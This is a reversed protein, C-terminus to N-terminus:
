YTGWVAINNLISIVYNTNAEAELPNDNFWTIGTISITITSDSTFYIVIEQNSATGVSASLSSITGLKYVTNPVLTSDIVSKETIVPYNAQLQGSPNTTITNNDTKVSVTDNNLSIATGASYSKNTTKTFGYVTITDTSVLATTFYITDNQIYYDYTDDSDPRLLVGNKYIIVTDRSSIGESYLSNGTINTYYALVPMLYETDDGTVTLENNQNFSITNNDVKASIVTNNIDIGNGATYTTGGGGGGESPKAKGLYLIFTYTLAM